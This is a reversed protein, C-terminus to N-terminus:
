PSGEATAALTPEATTRVLIQPDVRAQNLKVGWHLHAGTVRGTAGVYGIVAGREVLDGVKCAFDSLHFYMTFLSGGHDLIVSNGSFYLDEALVVRGRNAAVFPTGTPAAVDVGSHPRKPVGNFIRRAGFGGGWQGAIPLVFPEVWLTKRESATWIEALRANERRIRALTAEDFEEYKRDVTLREVPYDSPRVDLARAVAFPRGDALTGRVQLIHPGVPADLDVGVLAGHGGAGDPAFWIPFAGFDAEVAAIGQPHRVTAQVIGGQRVQTPEIEVDVRPEAVSPETPSAAPRAAEVVDAAVLDAPAAVLALAAALTAPLARRM